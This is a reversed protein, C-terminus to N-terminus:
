KHQFYPSGYIEHVIINGIHVSKMECTINFICIHFIEFTSLSFHIFQLNNWKLWIFIYRVFQFYLKLTEYSLIQNNHNMM